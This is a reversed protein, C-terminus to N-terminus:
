DNIRQNEKSLDKLQQLKESIKQLNYDTYVSVESFKIFQNFIRAAQIGKEVANEYTFSKCETNVFICAKSTALLNNDYVLKIPQITNSLIVELGKVQKEMEYLQRPLEFTLESKSFCTEFHDILGIMM